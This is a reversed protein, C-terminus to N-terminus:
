EWGAVPQVFVLLDADFEKDPRPTIITGHAWSGQAAFQIIAPEWDSDRIATKVAGVSTSLQDIRTQNLNVCDELFIKFHELLKM